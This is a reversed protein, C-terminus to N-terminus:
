KKERHEALGQLHWFERRSEPVRLGEGPILISAPLVVTLIYKLVDVDRRSNKFLIQNSWHHNNLSNPCDLIEGIPLCSPM